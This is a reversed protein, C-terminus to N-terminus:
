KPWRGGPSWGGPIRKYACLDSAAACQIRKDSEPSGRWDAELVKPDSPPGENAKTFGTLPVQFSIMQGQMNIGQITLEWGKKMKAILDPNIDLQAVCGVQICLVYRGNIPEEKDVILRMGQPLQMGLPLSIHLVKTDEGQVEVLRFATMAQGTEGRVERVTICVDKMGNPTQERGCFKTWPSFTLPVHQDATQPQAGAEASSAEIGLALGAAAIAALMWRARIDMVQGPHLAAAISSLV